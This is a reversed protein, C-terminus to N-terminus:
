QKKAADKKPAPPAAAPVAAPPPPPAPFYAESYVPKATEKISDIAEQLKKTKMNKELTAKVGEFPTADFKEVKIIHYGYQTKVVPSIEGAKTDFSVKEFEPVM